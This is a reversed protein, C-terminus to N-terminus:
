DDKTDFEALEEKRNLQTVETRSHLGNEYIYRHMSDLVRAKITVIPRESTAMQPTSGFSNRDWAYAFSLIIFTPVLVFALSRTM